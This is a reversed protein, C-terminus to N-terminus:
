VCLDSFPVANLYLMGRDQGEADKFEFLSQGRMTKGETTVWGKENGLSRANLMLRERARDRNHFVHEYHVANGSDIRIVLYAMKHLNSSSIPIPKLLARAVDQLQTFASISAGPKSLGPPRNAM